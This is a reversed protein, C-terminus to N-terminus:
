LILSIAAIVEILFILTSWFFYGYLFSALLVSTLLDFSADINKVGNESAVAASAATQDTTTTNSADLSQAAALLQANAEQFSQPSLNSEDDSVDWQQPRNWVGGKSSAIQTIHKGDDLSLSINENGRGIMLHSIRRNGSEAIIAGQVFRTSDAFELHFTNTKTDVVVAKAGEFQSGKLAQSLPDQPTLILRYGGDSLRIVNQGCGSWYTINAILAICVLSKAKFVIKHSCNM